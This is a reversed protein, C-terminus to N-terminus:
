PVNSAIPPKDREAAEEVAVGGVHQQAVGGAACELDIVDSGVADIECTRGRQTRDSQVPLERAGAVEAAEALGVHEQAVGIAASQLHVVDLVIL